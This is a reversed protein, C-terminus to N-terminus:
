PQGGRVIGDLTVIDSPVGIRLTGGTKPQGRVAEPTSSQAATVPPAATSPKAAPPSTPATPATPTCAVVLATGMSSAFFGLASRRSLRVAGLHALDLNSMVGAGGLM